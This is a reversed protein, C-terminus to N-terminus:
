AMVYLVTLAVIGICAVVVGIIRDAADAAKLDEEDLEIDHNRDIYEMM